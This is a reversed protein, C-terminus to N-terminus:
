PKELLWIHIHSSSWLSPHASFFQHKWVTHQLLSKLAGQLAPLDFRDIRFSILEPYENSPSISVSSDGIRQGDSTFLQSVPFCGSAPFSQPCSSFPSVSSSITQHCWRSLPCSNSCARPSTSPCPLRVHQLGHPQLTAGMQTVSCCCREPEEHRMAYLFETLCLTLYSTSENLSFCEVSQTPAMESPSFLVM